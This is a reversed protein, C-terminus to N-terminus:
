HQSGLEKEQSEGVQEAPDTSASRRNFAPYCTYAFTVSKPTSDAGTEELADFRATIKFTVGKGKAWAQKISADDKGDPPMQATVTVKGTEGESTEIPEAVSGDSGLRDNCTLRNPTVGLSKKWEYLPVMTRLNVDTWLCQRLSKEPQPSHADTWTWTSSQVENGIVTWEPRTADRHAGEYAQPQSETPM